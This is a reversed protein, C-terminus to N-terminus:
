QATSPSPPSPPAYGSGPELRLLYLIFIGGQDYLDADTFRAGYEDLLEDPLIPTPLDGAATISGAFMVVNRVIRHDLNGRRIGRIKDVTDRSVIVAGM